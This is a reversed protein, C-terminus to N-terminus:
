QAAERQEAFPHDQRAAIPAACHQCLYRGGGTKWGFARAVGDRDSGRFCLQVPCHHCTLIM